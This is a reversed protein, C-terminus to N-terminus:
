KNKDIRLGTLFQDEDHPRGVATISANPVDQVSAVRITDPMFWSDGHMEGANEVSTM